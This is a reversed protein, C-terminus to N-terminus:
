STSRELGSLTTREADLFDAVRPAAEYEDRTMRKLESMIAAAAKAGEMAKKAQERVDEPLRPDSMLFESYGVTLSLKNAIRDQMASATLRAGELLATDTDQKRRADALRMYQSVHTIICWSAVVITLMAINVILMHATAGSSELAVALGLCAVLGYLALRKIRRLLYSSTGQDQCQMPQKGAISIAGIMRGVEDNRVFNRSAPLAPGASASPTV